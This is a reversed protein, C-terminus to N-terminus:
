KHYGIGSLGQTILSDPKTKQIDTNKEHDYDDLLESVKSFKLLWEYGESTAKEEIARSLIQIGTKLYYVEQQKQALRKENIYGHVLYDKLRQTAWIRFQTARNSNVRYGISIIFDLNYTEVKRKVKRNGEIQVIDMESVTAERKLEGEKLINKIHKNIAPVETGFLDATNRQNLWITNQEFRV